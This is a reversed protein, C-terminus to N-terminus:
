FIGPKDVPVAHGADPILAPVAPPDVRGAAKPPQSGRYVGNAGTVVLTPIRIEQLRKRSNFTGLFVHGEPLRPSRSAFDDRGVNGAILVNAEAPFVRRAVLRAQAPLGMTSVLLARQM